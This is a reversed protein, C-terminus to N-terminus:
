FGFATQGERKQARSVKRPRGFRVPLKYAMCPPVLPSILARFANRTPGKITIRNDPARVANIGWREGFWRCAREVDEPPFCVTAFEPVQGSGSTGDDMFWVAIALPGCRELLSQPIRKPGEPYCEQYLTTLVPISPTQFRCTTYTRDHRSDFRSYTSITSVLPALLTHKYQLYELQKEGHGITLHYNIGTKPKGLSGDGLVSGYIVQWQDESLDLLANRRVGAHEGGIYRGKRWTRYCAHSCTTPNEQKRPCHFTNGCTACTVEIRPIFRSNAFCQRSCFRQPPEVGPRGCGECNRM